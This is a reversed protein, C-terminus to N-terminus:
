DISEQPAFGTSIRKLGLKGMLSVSAGHQQPMALGHFCSCKADFERVEGQIRVNCQVIRMLGVPNLCILIAGYQRWQSAVASRRQGLTM